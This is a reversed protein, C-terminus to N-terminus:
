RRFCHRKNRNVLMADRIIEGILNNCLRIGLRGRVKALAFIQSRERQDGDVGGIGAVMVIRDPCMGIFSGFVFAAMDDPDGDGIDRMVDRRPRRQVALGALAAIGGIEGVADHRHQRISQRAIETGQVFANGTGAKGHAHHQIGLAVLDAVAKGATQHFRHGRQVIDLHLRRLVARGIGFGFRQHILNDSREVGGILCRGFGAGVALRQVEVQGFALDDQGLIAGDLRHFDGFAEVRMPHDLFEHDEGIDGGGFFQDPELARQQEPNVFFGRGFLQLRQSLDGLGRAKRQGLTLNQM